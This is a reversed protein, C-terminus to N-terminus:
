YAEEAVQRILQSIKKMEYRGRPFDHGHGHHFERANKRNCLSLLHLGHHPDEIDEETSRIHLTPIEILPEEDERVEYRCLGYEGNSIFATGDRLVRGECANLLALMSAHDAQDEETVGDKHRLASPRMFM